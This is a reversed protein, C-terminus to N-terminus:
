QILNSPNDAIVQSALLPHDTIIGDVGLSILYRMESADNVTFTHIRHGFRQGASILRPTVDSKEPQLAAFPVISRGLWGRSLYGPLGPKALFGIPIEPYLDHFRRLPVPHFSSVFVQDQLQYKRIIRAVETALRDFPTTYNTLEINIGIKGGFVEIVQELTPIIEDPYQDRFKYSANLERLAAYPLDAVRGTGDTTRDVTRDHVLVVRQDASLKADLEILDAKHQIALEFAAITNEPAHASAGRHAFILPRLKQLVM